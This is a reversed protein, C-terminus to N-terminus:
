GTTIVERVGGHSPAWDSSDLSSWKFGSFPKLVFVTNPHGVLGSGPLVLDNMASLRFSTTSVVVRDLPASATEVIVAVAGDGFYEIHILRYADVSRFRVVEM